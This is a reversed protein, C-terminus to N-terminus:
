QSGRRTFPDMGVPTNRLKEPPDPVLQHILAIGRERDFGIVYTNPTISTTVTAFARWAASEPNDACASFRLTRFAGHPREGRVLRRWLVAALTASDRLIGGPVNGLLLLWRLRPQFRVNSHLRVELAVFAAIAAAVAGALVEPYTLTDVLLLWLGFLVVWWGLLYM